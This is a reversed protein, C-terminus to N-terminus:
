NFFATSRSHLCLFASPLSTPFNGTDPQNTSLDSFKKLGGADVFVPESPHGNINILAGRVVDQPVLGFAFVFQRFNENVIVFTKTM